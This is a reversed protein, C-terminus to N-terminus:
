APGAETDDVVTVPEFDGTPQIFGGHEGDSVMAVPAALAPGPEGSWIYLWATTVGAPDPDPEDYVSFVIEDTM